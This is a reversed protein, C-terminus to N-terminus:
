FLFEAQQQIETKLGSDSSADLYAFSAGAEAAISHLGGEQNIVFVGSHKKM